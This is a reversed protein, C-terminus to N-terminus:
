AWKSRIESSSQRSLRSQSEGTWRMYWDSGIMVALRLWNCGIVDRLPKESAFLVDVGECDM